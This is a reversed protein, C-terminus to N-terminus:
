FKLIFSTIHYMQHMSNYPESDQVSRFTSSFYKSLKSIHHQLLISFILQVSRTPVSYLVPLFIRFVIFLLFILQLPWIKRLFQRGFYPTSPFIALLIYNIPLPPLLRLCSSSSRLSFFPYRFSFFSASSRVTRLVPKTLPQPSNKLRVASHIFSHIVKSHTLCENSFPRDATLM